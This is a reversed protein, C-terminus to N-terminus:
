KGHRKVRDALAGSSKRTRQESFVPIEWSSESEFMTEALIVAQDLDRNNFDAIINHVVGKGLTEYISVLLQALSRVCSRSELADRVMRRAVDCSLPM